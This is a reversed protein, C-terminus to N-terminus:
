EISGARVSSCPEVVTDFGSDLMVDLVAVPEELGSKPEEPAAVLVPSDFLEPLEVVNAPSEEDSSRAVLEPVWLPLEITM